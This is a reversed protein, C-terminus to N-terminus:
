ASNGHFVFTEKPYGDILVDSIQEAIEQILAVGSTNQHVYKLYPIALQQQVPFAYSM